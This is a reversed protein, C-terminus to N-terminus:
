FSASLEGYRRLLAPDGDGGAMQGELRKLEAEMAHIRAFASELVDEVTYGGSVGSDPFLDWGGALRM